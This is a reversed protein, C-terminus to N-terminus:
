LKQENDIEKQIEEMINPNHQVYLYAEEGIIPKLYAGWTAQYKEISRDTPINKAEYIDNIYKCFSKGILLEHVEDFKLCMSGTCSSCSKTPLTEANETLAVDCEKIWQKTKYM